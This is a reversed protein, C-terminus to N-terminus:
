NPLPCHLKLPIGAIVQIEPCLKPKKKFNRYLDGMEKSNRQRKKKSEIKKKIYIEFNLKQSYFGKGKFGELLFFFPYCYKSM